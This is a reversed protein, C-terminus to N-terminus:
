RLCLNQHITYAFTREGVRYIKHTDNGDDGLVYYNKQFGKRGSFIRSLKIDELADDFTIRLDEYREKFVPLSLLLYTYIDIDTFGYRNLLINSRRNGQSAFACLFLLGDTEKLESVSIKRNVSASYSFIFLISDVMKKIKLNEMDKEIYSFGIDSLAKLSEPRKALILQAKIEAAEIKLKIDMSSLIRKIENRM